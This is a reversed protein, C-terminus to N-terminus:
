VYLSLIFQLYIESLIEVQSLENLEEPIDTLKNNSLGVVKLSTMHKVESVVEPIKNGCISLEM